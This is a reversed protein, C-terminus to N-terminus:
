YVTLTYEDKKANVTFEGKDLDYDVTTVRDISNMVVSFAKTFVYGAVTLTGRRALSVPTRHCKRDAECFEEMKRLQEPTINTWHDEGGVTEFELYRVLEQKGLERAREVYARAHTVPVRIDRAGHVITLPSHLNMLTAIGSRSAFAEDSPSKGIWVDMEDRFEGVSDNKYWVGYDSM